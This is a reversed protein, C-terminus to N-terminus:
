NEDKDWCGCYADVIGVIGLSWVYRERCMSVIHICVEKLSIFDGALRSKKEFNYLLILAEELGKDNAISVSEPIVSKLEESFDKKGEFSAANFDTM